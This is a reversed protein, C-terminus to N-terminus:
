HEKKRKVLRVPLKTGRTVSRQAEQRALSASTPLAFDPSERFIVWAFRAMQRSEHSKLSSHGVNHAFCVSRAWTLFYNKVRPMWKVNRERKELIECSQLRQLMCLWRSVGSQLLQHQLIRRSVWLDVRASFPIQEACWHHICADSRCSSTLQM